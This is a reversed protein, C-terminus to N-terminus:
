ETKLLIRYVKSPRGKTNTQRSYLPQALQYKVLTSLLRNVSRITIHLIRSLELTTVEETGTIRCAAILKQITLTSLGTQDAVERMYPTIPGEISFDNGRGYLAILKRDECFLYSNQNGNIRSEKGADIANAEAQRRERGFGYGIALEMKGNEQIYERLHCCTLSDTIKELTKFDTSVRFGNKTEAISFDCFYKNSFAVLLKGLHDQKQRFAEWAATDKPSAAPLVLEITAPQRDKLEGMLIEQILQRFAILIDNHSFSIYHCDVGAELIQPMIPSMRSLSYQIKGSKWLEIHKKLKRETSQQMEEVTMNAMYHNNQDLWEKFTGNKLHQAMTSEQDPCLYDCFDFYGHEFNLDHYQYIVELFAKYYNSESCLFFNIPKCNEVSKRVIQMPVPGTTLFGDFQAEIQRYLDVIHVYNYYIFIETECDLSLEQVAEQLYDKLYETSLIAIKM